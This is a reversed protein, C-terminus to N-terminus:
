VQPHVRRQVHTKYRHTQTAANYHPPLHSLDAAPARGGTAVAVVVVFAVLAPVAVGVENCPAAFGVGPAGPAPALQSARAAVTGLATPPCKKVRTHNNRREGSKKQKKRKSENMANSSTQAM